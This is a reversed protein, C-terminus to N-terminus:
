DEHKWRKNPISNSTISTSSGSYEVAPYIFEKFSVLKGILYTVGLVSRIMIRDYNCPWRCFILRAQLRFIDSIGNRCPEYITAPGHPGTTGMPLDIVSSGRHEIYAAEAAM